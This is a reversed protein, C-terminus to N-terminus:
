LILVPWRTSVEVYKKYVVCDSFKEAGPLCVFRGAMDPRDCNLFNDMSGYQWATFLVLGLPMMGATRDILFDHLQFFNLCSVVISNLSRVAGGFSTEIKRIGCLFFIEKKQKYKL